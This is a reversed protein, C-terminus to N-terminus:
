VAIDTKTFQEKYKRVVENIDIENQKKLRKIINKLAKQPNNLIETELYETDKDEGHVKYNVHDSKIIIETIQGLKFVSAQRDSYVIDHMKYKTRM